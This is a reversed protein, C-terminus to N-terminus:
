QDELGCEADWRRFWHLRGVFVAWMGRLRRLECCGVFAHVHLDDGAFASFSVFVVEAVGDDGDGHEELDDHGGGHRCEARAGRAM